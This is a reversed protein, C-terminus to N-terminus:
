STIYKELKGLISEDDSYINLMIKKTLDLSLIGMISKADTVYKDLVLEFECDYNAITSVFSKVDEASKLEIYATKM